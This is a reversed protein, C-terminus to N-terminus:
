NPIDAQYFIKLIYKNWSMYFLDYSSFYYNLITKINNERNDIM